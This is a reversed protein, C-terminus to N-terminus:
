DYSHSAEEAQEDEGEFTAHSLVLYSGPVTAGMLREVIGAPDEGDRIFHLVAVLLIAVPQDFDLVARVQPHELISVPDRLDGYVVTTHGPDHGALLAGAHAMVIPDNDVYVVRAEPDVSQAAANTSGPGPIGTGIDLFQRVGHAALYRVTRGLFARNARAIARMQPFVALVQEAADRDVAYNDKGGLYYDYMRATHAISTDIELPDWGPTLLHAVRRPVSESESM